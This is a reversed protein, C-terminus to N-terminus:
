LLMGHHFNLRQYIRILCSTPMCHINAHSLRHCWDCPAERLHMPDTNPRAQAVTGRCCIATHVHGQARNCSAPVVRANEHCYKDTIESEKQMRAQSCSAAYRSSTATGGIDRDGDGPMGKRPFARRSECWRCQGVTAPRNSRGGGRGLIM